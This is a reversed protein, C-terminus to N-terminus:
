SPNSGLDPGYAQALPDMVKKWLPPLLALWIMGAYGAPLQPSEEVVCLNQYPRSAYIHHDPHRQLKFLFYNTLRSRSEWSHQSTTKEYKGPSIERRQLGYHEIYNVLELLTFAVVSQGVFFVLALTGFILGVAFTLAIQLSVGVLMENRLNWPSRNRKALRQKELHWASRFSGFVTRPYYRYFSEGLRASAPDLPTAVRVHHGAIHEVAFHEYWVSVLLARGLYKEIKSQRHILEHALTIGIAGTIIGVTAVVGLFEWPRFVAAKLHGCTLWLLAFHLACYILIPAQFAWQRKRVRAEKPNPNWSDEGIVFDLIPILIFGIAFGLWVYWGGQQIGM